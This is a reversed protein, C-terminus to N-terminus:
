HGCACWEAHFCTYERTAVAPSFVVLPIRALVHKQFQVGTDPRVVGQQRVQELLYSLESFISFM